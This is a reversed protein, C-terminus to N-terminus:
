LTKQLDIKNYIKAQGLQDLLGPILPLLYWNKITVKNLGRYDVCMWLSGDEKKVFLIPTGTPSKSHQIFNKALNEDIYEKRSEKLAVLEKQSLNYIPGFYPQAEKEFDIAYDQPWHQLLM